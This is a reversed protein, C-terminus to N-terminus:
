YLWHDMGSCWDSLFRRDLQQQLLVARQPTANLLRKLHFTVPQQNPRLGLQLLVTEPRLPIAPGLDPTQRSQLPEPITPHVVGQGSPLHTPPLDARYGTSQDRCDSIQRSGTGHHWLRCHHTNEIMDKESVKITYQPDSKGTKSM